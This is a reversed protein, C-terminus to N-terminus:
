LNMRQVPKKLRNSRRVGGSSAQVKPPSVEKPTEYTIAESYERDRPETVTPSSPLNSIPPPEEVIKPSTRPIIQDQHRKAIGGTPLECRYSLPGTQQQIQAPIWKPGGQGRSYNRIMVPSDIQLNLKRPFSTHHFSQKQQNDAVKAAVSDWPNLLDLRSRLRRGFMLEAPSVGTTTHPTLRYNFLFRDITLQINTNSTTRLVKKLSGVMKEALGNTSPKYVASTIHRVGNSTCFQKFEAATFCPGNDSVISIPLGFQAFSHQLCRITDKSTTGSTHYVDVWKSHADVVVLFYRGEVPGAFDVHIRHWPRSPWDWPHLEAKGPNSRNRLCEPCSSCLTELDADLNPWWLYSRALEKMRSSGAHVSHLEKMLPDRLKPPVVVRSGWLICGNQISLEARRRIFPALGPDGM